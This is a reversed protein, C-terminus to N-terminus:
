DKIVITGSANQVVQSFSTSACGSSNTSNATESCGVTAKFKGRHYIDKSPFTQKGCSPKTPDINRVTFSQSSKTGCSDSCTVIGTGNSAFSSKSVTCSCGAERCFATVSKNNAWGSPSIVGYNSSIPGTMDFSRTLFVRAQNGANDEFNVSQVSTDGASMVLGYSSAAKCGSEGDSCFFEYYIDRGTYCMSGFDKSHRRLWIPVTASGINVLSTASNSNDFYGFNNVGTPTMYPPNNDYHFNYNVTIKASNSFNFTAKATQYYVNSGVSGLRCYPNSSPCSTSEYKQALGEMLKKTYDSLTISYTCNTKPGIYANNPSGASCYLNLRTQVDSAALFGSSAGEDLDWISDWNDLGGAKVENVNVLMFLSCLLLPIIYKFKNLYKM